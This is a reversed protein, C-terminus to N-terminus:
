LHGFISSVLIDTSVVLEVWADSVGVTLCQTHQAVGGRSSQTERTGTMSVGVTMM